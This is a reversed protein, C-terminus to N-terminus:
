GARQSEKLGLRIYFLVREQEQLIHRTLSTLLAHAASRTEEEEISAPILSSYERRELCTRVRRAVMQHAQLGEELYRIAQEGGIQGLSFASTMRVSPSRAPIVEQNEFLAELIVRRTPEFYGGPLKVRGKPDERRPEVQQPPGTQTLLRGLDPVAEEVRLAGLTQAAAWCTIPGPEPERVAKLLHPVVFEGSSTLAEQARIRLETLARAAAPDVEEGEAPRELSELQSLLYQVGEVDQM